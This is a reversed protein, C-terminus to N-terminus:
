SGRGRAERLVILFLFFFPFPPPTPPCTVCGPLLRAIIGEDGAASNDSALNKQTLIQLNTSSKYLYLRLLKRGRQEAEADSALMM